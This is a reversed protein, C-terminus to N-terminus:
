NNKKIFMYFATIITRNTNQLKELKFGISIILREHIELM